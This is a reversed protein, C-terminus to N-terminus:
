LINYHPLKHPQLHIQLWKLFLVEQNPLLLVKPVCNLLASEQAGLEEVFIRHAYAGAVGHLADYSQLVFYFIVNFGHFM